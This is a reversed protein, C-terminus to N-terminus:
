LAPQDELSTGCLAAGRGDLSPVLKHLLGPAAGANPRDGAQDCQRDCLLEGLFGGGVPRRRIPHCLPCPTQWLQLPVCPGRGASAAPHLQPLPGVPYEHGDFM